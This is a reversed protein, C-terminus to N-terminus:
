CAAYICDGAGCSPTSLLSDVAAANAEGAEGLVALAALALARTVVAPKADADLAEAIRAAAVGDVDFRAAHAPNQLVRAAIRKRAMPDSALWRVSETFQPDKLAMTAAFATAGRLLQESGENSARMVPGKGARALHVQYAGASALVTRSLAAEPQEGVAWALEQPESLASQAAAVGGFGMVGAVGAAILAATRVQRFTNM